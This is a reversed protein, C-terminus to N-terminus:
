RKVEWGFDVAYFDICDDASIWGCITDKRM